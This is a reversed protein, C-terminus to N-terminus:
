HPLSANQTIGKMLRIACYDGCMSCESTDGALERARIEDMALAFQGDRDLAARKLSMERDAADIGYKVIDGIHAAIRFALLGEKVQESGPLGLHEAPTIYCLYDAGAASAASAGACGAIHDYGLAIDTPLPGAVFLPFPSIKKYHRILPAIRDYRIHGGAGEIIVQVGRERAYRGLEGNIKIEEMQAKDRGDHIGGSRATNGLSLVIDYQRFIDLIEDFREIFPNECSNLHMYVSTISGGKSVIGAVRKKRKLLGLIRTDVGHLVMSSVGSAAQRRITSLIDDGSMKEIGFRAAAEYIPVTTLPVSTSRFIEDRIMQIDGGMSLDTITDAGFREAIRAKEIEALLSIQSSSTGINVNVKTRLGKGIGVNRVGRRMIVASGDIIRGLLMNTDIRECDAVQIISKNVKGARAAELITAM